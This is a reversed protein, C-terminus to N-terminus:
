GKEITIFGVNVKCNEVIVWPTHEIYENIADQLEPKKFTDHFIIFKNVKHGHLKLEKKLHTYQHLTDIYLLDVRTIHCSLTDKEFIKYDINNNKIYQDFLHKAKNYGRLSIDYARVQEPNMLIAAALTAGQKVGFETYSNCGERIRKQIEKHVLMYEIGHGQVQLDYLQKYYEDLSNSKDAISLDSIM